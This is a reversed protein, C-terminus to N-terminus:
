LNSWMIICTLKWFISYLKVIQHYGEGDSFDYLCFAQVWAKQMM